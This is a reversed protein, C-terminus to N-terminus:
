EDSRGRLGQIMLDIDEKNRPKGRGLWKKFMNERVSKVIIAKNGEAIVDVETGPFFGFKARVDQPITIQGKSTVRPM